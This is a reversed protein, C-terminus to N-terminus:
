VDVHPAHGHRRRRAPFADREMEHPLELEERDALACRAQVDARRREQEGRETEGLRETKATRALRGVVEEASREDRQRLWQAASSLPRTSLFASRMSRADSM